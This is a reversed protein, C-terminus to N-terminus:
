PHAAVISIVTMSMMLIALSLNNQNRLSNDDVKSDKKDVVPHHRGSICVFCQVVVELVLLTATYASLCSFFLLLECYREMDMLFLNYGKWEEGAYYCSLFSLDKKSCLKKDSIIFKPHIYIAVCDDWPLRARAV